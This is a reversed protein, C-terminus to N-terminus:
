CSRRPNAQLPDGARSSKPEDQRATYATAPQSERTSQQCSRFPTESLRAVVATPTGATATPKRHKARHSDTRSDRSPPQGKKRPHQTLTAGTARDANGHRHRMQDPHREIHPNPEARHTATPETTSTVATSDTPTKDQYVTGANRGDQHRHKGQQRMQEPQKQPTPKGNICLNKCLQM